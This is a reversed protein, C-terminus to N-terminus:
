APTTRALSTTQPTQLAGRRQWSLLGWIATLGWEPPRHLPCQTTRTTNGQPRCVAWRPVASGCHDFFGGYSPSGSQLAMNICNKEKRPVWASRLAPGPRGRHFPRTLSISAAHRGQTNRLHIKRPHKVGQELQQQHLSHYLAQSLRTVFIFRTM